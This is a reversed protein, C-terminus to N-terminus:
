NCVTFHNIQIEYKSRNRSEVILSVRFSHFYLNIISGAPATILWTIEHNNWYNNPYNPSKFQNRDCCNADDNGFSAPCNKYGCFLKDRCQEDFFCPRVDYPFCAAFGIDHKSVRNCDVSIFLIQPHRYFGSFALSYWLIKGRQNKLELNM